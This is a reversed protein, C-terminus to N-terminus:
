RRPQMVHVRDRVLQCMDKDSSCVVVGLGASRGWRVFTSFSLLLVCLPGNGGDTWVDLVHAHLAAVVAVTVVVVM